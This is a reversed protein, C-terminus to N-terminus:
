NLFNNECPLKFKWSQCTRSYKKYIKEYPNQIIIPTYLKKKMKGRDILYLFYNNKEEKAFSVENASWFFTIEDIYSKVEIFKDLVVSNDTIYSIIDYGANTDIESIIQIDEVKLHNCRITKEYNLVFEEAKKGIDNQVEQISQLKLLSNNNIASQNILPVITDIFWVTFKKNVILYNKEIQKFIGLNILFNRIPSFKLPIFGNNIYIYSKLRISNKNLFKHLEKEKSLKSFILQCFVETSQFAHKKRLYVLNGVKIVGLWRLFDIIGEFSRAFSFEKSICVQKLDKISYHNESLIDILYVVQEKTGINNHKLLKDLM